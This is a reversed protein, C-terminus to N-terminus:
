RVNVTFDYTTYSYRMESSDVPSGASVSFHDTGHFGKDSTYSISTGVFKRGTCPPTNVIFTDPRIDLKGHVPEELVKTRFQGESSCTSVSYSYLQDSITQGSTTDMTVDEAHAVAALSLLIAAAILSRM